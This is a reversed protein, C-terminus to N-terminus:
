SGRRRHRRASGRRPPRRIRREAFLKKQFTSRLSCAIRRIAWHRVSPRGSARMSPTWYRAFSSPCRWAGNTEGVVVRRGPEELPSPELVAVEEAGLDAPEPDLDVHRGRERRRARLHERDDRVQEPQPEVRLHGVVLGRGARADEGGPHEVERGHEVRRLPHLQEVVEPAVHDLRARRRLSPPGAVAAPEHRRFAVIAFPITALAPGGRGPPVGSAPGVGAAAPGRGGNRGPRRADRDHPRRDDGQSPDGGAHADHDRRDAARERAPRLVVVRALATM